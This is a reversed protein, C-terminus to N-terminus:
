EDVIQGGKRYREVRDMIENVDKWIRKRNRLGKIDQWCGKLMTYLKFWDTSSAPMDRAEFFWPMDQVLRKRFLIIPLQRCSRTALRLNAIDKSSLHDLIM